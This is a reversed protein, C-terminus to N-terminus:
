FHSLTPWLPKTACYISGSMYHISILMDAIILARFFAGRGWQEQGQSHGCGSGLHATDATGPEGQRKPNPQKAPLKGHKDTQLISSHKCVSGLTESCRSALAFPLPLEGAGCCGSSAGIWSALGGGRRHTLASDNASTGTASSKIWALAIHEPIVSCERLPFFPLGIAQFPESCKQYGDLAAIM